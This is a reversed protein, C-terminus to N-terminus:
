EQYIMKRTMGGDVVCNQGTIFGAEPSILFAALSAIDRPQGVRGVPHQAHDHPPLPPVETDDGQWARTDIWGPSICNVRIDPGLSIALAHTLAVLGGKTAAYAESNPESQLARTSAINVIAGGSRRLHPVAHKTVLFPGTLNVDLRRQWTALDLAEVPGTHPGALGANNIVADLRGFAAIAEAVLNRVEPERSVDAQVYRVTDGLRQQLRQGPDQDLDCFVVRWGAGALHEVLGRGIGRAGGTVLVVRSEPM